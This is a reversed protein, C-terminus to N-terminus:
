RYLSGLRWSVSDSPSRIFRSVVARTPGIRKHHQSSTNSECCQVLLGGPEVHVGTVVSRTSRPAFTQKPSVDMLPRGPPSRNRIVFPLSTASKLMM